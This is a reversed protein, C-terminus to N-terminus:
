QVLLANKALRQLSATLAQDLDFPGADPSDVAAADDTKLNGDAIASKLDARLAQRDRTGDLYPLLQIDFPELLILRHRLNTVPEGRAAQHRALANVAPREGPTGVFGWPRLQFAVMESLYCQLLSEALLTPGGAVLADAEPHHGLRTCVQAWLDNFAVASPWVEYLAVLAAKVSPTNTTVRAGDDNRFAEVAEESLDPSASVPQAMATVYLNSLTSFSPSRSLTLDDHCILTRRFTRNNLFDLYQELNILSSSIQKLTQQVEQPFRHLSSRFWAEGLYQLGRGAIREAFQHFYIPENVEELHEHFLYYDARDGLLEAEEKLIRAYPAEPAAASQILFALFARAQKVRVQPDSFQKAHFNLMERAMGRAHWGPYTNYSVYAVGHATLHRKCIELIKDQVVPPVWSYVGHCIIYDFQGFSDDFNLIDFPRLDINTLGLAAVTEQGVAVQRPSLDIGVFQSDPLSIAMPIINGGAACGLELVRCREVPAPSMGVLTAMTALCDPHTPYLPKSTYPVDEYSTLAAETM